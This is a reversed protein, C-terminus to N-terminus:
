GSVKREKKEEKGKATLASEQLSPYLNQPRGARPYSQPHAKIRVLCCSAECPVQMVAHIEQSGGMPLKPHQAWLNLSIDTLHSALAELLARSLLLIMTEDSHAGEWNSSFYIMSAKEPSLILIVKKTMDGSFCLEGLESCATTECLHAACGDANPLVEGCEASLSKGLGGPVPTKGM